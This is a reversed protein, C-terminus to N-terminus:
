KKTFRGQLCTECSTDTRINFDTTQRNGYLILKTKEPNILLLNDFCWDRFRLLDENVASVANKCDHVGFSM